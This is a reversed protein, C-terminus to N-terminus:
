ALAKNIEQKHRNAFNKHIMGRKAAKDLSSTLAGFRAKAEEKKGAAILSKVKKIGSRVGSRVSKNHETRIVTQRARKASSKINAM